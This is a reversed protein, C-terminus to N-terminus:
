FELTDEIWERVVRREEGERGDVLPEFSPLPCIGVREEAASQPDLEEDWLVREKLEHLLISRRMLRVMEEAQSKPSIEGEEGEMDAGLTKRRASKQALKRAQKQAANKRPQGQEKEEGKETENGKRTDSETYLFLSRPIKLGSAKPPYKLNSKRSM